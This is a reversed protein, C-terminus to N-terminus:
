GFVSAVTDCGTPRRPTPDTPAVLDAIEHAAQLRRTANVRTYYRMLTAADPRRGPEAQTAGSTHLGM